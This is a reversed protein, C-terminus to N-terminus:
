QGAVAWSSGLQRGGGAAGGGTDLVAVVCGAGAAGRTNAAAARALPLSEALAPVLLRNPMLSAVSPDAQLAELAAAGAVAVLAVPLQEFDRVLRLGPRPAAGAAAAAASPAAAAASAPGNPSDSAAIAAAAAAAVAAAAPAATPGAGTSLVRAKALAHAAIRALANGPWTADGLLSGAAEPARGLAPPEGGAGPGLRAAGGAPRPLSAAAALAAAAAGEDAETVRFAVLLEIEKGSRIGEFAAARGAAASPPPAGTAGAATEPEPAQPV